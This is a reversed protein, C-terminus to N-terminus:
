APLLTLFGDPGQLRVACPEGTAEWQRRCARQAAVVASARDPHETGPGRPSVTVRWTGHATPAVYLCPLAEWGVRGGGSELPHMSRAVDM